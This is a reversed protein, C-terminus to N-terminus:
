CESVEIRPLDPDVSETPTEAETKTEAAGFDLPESVRPGSVDLTDSEEWAPKALAPATNKWFTAWHDEEKKREAELEELSKQIGRARAVDPIKYFHGDVEFCTDSPPVTFVPPPLATGSIDSVVTPVATATATAMEGGTWASQFVADQAERAAMLEALACNNRIELDPDESKRYGSGEIRRAPCAM